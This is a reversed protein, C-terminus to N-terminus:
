VSGSGPTRIKHDKEPDYSMDFIDVVEPGFIKHMYSYLNFNEMEGEQLRIVQKKLEKRTSQLWEDIENIIDTNRHLKEYCVSMSAVMLKYNIDYIQEPLEMLLEELDDMQENCDAILRQHDDLSREASKDGNNLRDSLGIVEDLLTKKLRKIDKIKQRASSQKDLLSDLEEAMENIEPSAGEEGFLMRWSDDATVIPIKRGKLASMYADDNRPM